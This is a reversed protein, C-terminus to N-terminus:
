GADGIIGLTSGEHAGARARARNLVNARARARAHARARSSHPRISHSTAPLKATRSIARIVPSTRPKRSGLFSALRVSTSDRGSITGPPHDARSVEAGEM